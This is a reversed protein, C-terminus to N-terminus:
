VFCSTIVFTVVSLNFFQTVLNIPLFQIMEKFLELGQGILSFLDQIFVDFDQNSFFNEAGRIYVLQFVEIDHAASNGDWRCRDLHLDPPFIGLICSEPYPRYISGEVGDSFHCTCFGAKKTERYIGDASSHVGLPFYDDPELFVAKHGQSFPSVRFCM